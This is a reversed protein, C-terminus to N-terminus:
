APTRPKSFNMALRHRLRLIDAGWRNCVELPDVTNGVSKSMKLGLEDVVFAHTLCSKFPLNGTGGTAVLSSLQFWGRHQDDGELYLDAPFSLSPHNMGVARHSSGSEFWVDFIDMLRVLKRGKWEQPRVSDPVLKQCSISPDFWIGSGNKKVCSAVSEVVEPTCLIEGTKPDEFAPIAIGWKRQRSICWDPRSEVMGSLRDQGWQPLFRAEKMLSTVASRLSVGRGDMPVDMKVFWQPTARYIIPAKTRWCHAVSHKVTGLWLVANCDLADLVKEQSKLVTLGALGKLSNPLRKVGLEKAFESPSFYRGKHDVPCPVELGWKQAASHDDPGHGPATHVCGTGEEISVYDMTITKGQGVFPHDYTAGQLTKGLVKRHHCGKIGLRETWELALVTSLIVWGSETQFLGYDERPNLATAVHSPLTWPTTTWIVLRVRDNGVKSQFSKPLTENHILLGVAVSPSEVEKYILEAEALASQAVWSWAVPKRAREVIGGEVMKQFTVLVEAEYSSDTTLYPSEWDGLVGLRKFQERQKDVHGLAEELCVGRFDPVTMGEPIRGGLRALVKQEIPLGHCDWGPVYPTDKGLSWQFRLVIDKLIKNMATGMHIDGNAYPPGDHLIFRPSGRRADLRKQYLELGEWYELWKPEQKPLGARMPFDTKPLLLSEKWPNKPATM